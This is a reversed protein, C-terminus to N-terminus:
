YACILRLAHSDTKNWCYTTGSDNKYASWKAGETSTWYYNTVKQVPSLGKDILNQICAELTKPYTNFKMESKGPIYWDSCNDPKACDGVFADLLPILLCIKDSGNASCYQNYARLIKTNSYGNYYYTGDGILSPYGNYPSTVQQFNEYIYYDNSAMWQTSESANYLAVILGHTCQPYDAILVPDLVETSIKYYVIGRVSKIQDENLSLTSLVSGGSRDTKNM